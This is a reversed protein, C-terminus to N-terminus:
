GLRAAAIVSATLWAVCDRKQRVRGLIDDDGGSLRQREVEASFRKGIHAVMRDDILPVQRNGASALDSLMVWWLVGSNLSAPAVM